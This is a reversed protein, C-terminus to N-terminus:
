RQELDKRLRTLMPLKLAVERKLAGDARRALWVEAMGGSGLPRVLQYPGVRAGSQLGGPSPAGAESVAGLEPLGALRPDGPLLADRLAPGLDQHEAPLTELWARRGAADLPLAEDLLRSMRTLQPISLGM